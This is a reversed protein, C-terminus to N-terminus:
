ALKELSKVTSRRHTMGEQARHTWRTCLGTVSITYRAQGSTRQMGTLSDTKRHIQPISRPLPKGQRSYRTDLGAPTHPLGSHSCGRALARNCGQDECAATLNMRPVRRCGRQVPNETARHQSSAHLNLKPPLHCQLWPVQSQLGKKRGRAKGRSCKPSGSCARAHGWVTVQHGGPPGCCLGPGTATPAPPPLYKTAVPCMRQAM